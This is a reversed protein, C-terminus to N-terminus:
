RTTNEVRVYGTSAQYAMGLEVISDLHFSCLLDFSDIADPRVVLLIFESDADLVGDLFGARRPQENEASTFLPDLCSWPKKQRIPIELSVSPAATRKARAENTELLNSTLDDLPAFVVVLKATDATIAIGGSQPIETWTNAVVSRSVTTSSADSSVAAAGDRSSTVRLRIVDGPVFLYDAPVSQFEGAAGKRLLEYRLPTVSTGAARQFAGVGTGSLQLVGTSQASDASM